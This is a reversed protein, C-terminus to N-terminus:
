VVCSSYKVPRLCLVIHRQSIRQSCSVLLRGATCWTSTTPIIEQSEAIDYFKWCLCSRVVVKMEWSVHQSNKIHSRAYWGLPLCKGCYQSRSPRTELNRVSIGLRMTEFRPWARDTCSRQLRQLTSVMVTMTPM